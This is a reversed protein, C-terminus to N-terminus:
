GGVMEFLDVLDQRGARAAVGKPTQGRQDAGAPDAGVSLLWQCVELHGAAAAYHLARRGQEDQLDPDSGTMVRQQVRELDGATAAEHIPQRRLGVIEVQAGGGIGNLGASGVLDLRPLLQNEKLKVTLQRAKLDLASGIMEPRRELATALAEHRDVSVPEITARDVPEITRPRM